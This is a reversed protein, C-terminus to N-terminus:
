KDAICFLYEATRVYVRGDVFAPTAYTNERLQNTAILEPKDGLQLV